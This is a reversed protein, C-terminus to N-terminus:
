ACRVVFSRRERGEPKGHRGLYRWLALDLDAPEAGIHDAAKELSAGLMMRVRAARVEVQKIQIMLGFGSPM